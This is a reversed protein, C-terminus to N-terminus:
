HRGTPQPPSSTLIINIRLVYFFPARPYNLLRAARITEQLRPKACKTQNRWRTTERYVAVSSIPHGHQVTKKRKKGGNSTSLGSVLTFKSKPSNESSAFVADAICTSGGHLGDLRTSTQVAPLSQYLPPLISASRFLLRLKEADLLIRGSLWLLLLLPM